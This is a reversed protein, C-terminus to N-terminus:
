LNRVYASPSCLMYNVFEKCLREPSSEAGPRPAYNSEPIVKGAGVRIGYGYSLPRKSHGFVMEEPSTYAMKLSKM